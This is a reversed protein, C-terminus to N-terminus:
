PRRKGKPVWNKKCVKKTGDPQIIDVKGRLADKFLKSGRGYPDRASKQRILDGPFNIECEDMDKTKVRYRYEDNCIYDMTAENFEHYKYRMRVTRLVGYKILSDCDYDHSQYVDDDDSFFGTDSKDACTTGKLYGMRRFMQGGLRKLQAIQTKSFRKRNANIKGVRPKYVEKKSGTSTHEKIAAEILTGKLSKKNLLFSFLETLTSEPYSLLDEYRIVYTPILQDPDMWYSHFDRWVAVEQNIFMDFYSEFNQYEEEAISCNHTGTAIM